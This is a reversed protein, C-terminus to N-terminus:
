SSEGKEKKPSPSCSIEGQWRATSLPKYVGVVTEDDCTADNYLSSSPNFDRKDYEKTVILTSGVELENGVLGGAVAYDAFACEFDAAVSRVLLDANTPDALADAAVRSPAEVQILENCGALVIAASALAVM